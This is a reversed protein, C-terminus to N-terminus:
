LCLILMIIHSSAPLFPCVEMGNFVKGDWEKRWKRAVNGDRFKMLVMYRNMRETMIMRFHSVKERTEEGIWGLFYSPVAPICIITTDDAEQQSGGAASSEGNGSSFGSVTTSTRPANGLGLSEEEDRYLHVVGWGLETSTIGEGGTLTEFRAKTVNNRSSAPLSTRPGLGTPADLQRRPANMDISEVRVPGFRWDQGTSKYKKGTALQPQKSTNQSTPLAEAKAPDNYADSAVGRDVVPSATNRESESTYVESEPRPRPSAITPRSHAPLTAFINTKPPPLWIDKKASVQQKKGKAPKKHSNSTPASVNTASATSYLEFKLHYFYSRRTSM